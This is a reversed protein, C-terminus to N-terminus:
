PTTAAPAPASPGRYTIPLRIWFTTGEEASSSFAVEGGLYREGLLKMGYTGLGRGRGGKTSFSRVFVRQQVDLPIAGANHVSFRIAEGAAEGPAPAAVEARVRVAGGPATAELANRVMNTVVRLLLQPDTWVELEAPCASGLLERERAVAHSSFVSEVDQLLDLCRVRAPSVILTGDEAHVLDRQFCIERELQRGLVDLREVIRAVDCGPRRLVATWGRLGTVTNLVDHFFVQELAERRKEAALDRLSVVTFPVDEIRAVSARVSFEFSRGGGSVSRLLCEAETARDNRRAALIAGLSGCTQCAPLAGCGAPTQANVCGLAEGPRCGRVDPRTAFAAARESFAVIQRADNLILRASAVTARLATVIPSRSALRIERELRETSARRADPLENRFAEPLREFRAPAALLRLRPPPQSPLEGSIV